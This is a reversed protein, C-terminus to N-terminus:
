LPLHFKVRTYAIRFGRREANRQSTSGPAACMMALDCGREIAFALRAELLARQAGQNRAEPITSAGALVAVGDHMVLAGTAIPRGNLEAVFPHSAESAGTVRALDRVLPAFEEFESWGQAATDAWMDLEDDSVIRTTLNTEPHSATSLPQYLVSTFEIPQYGRAVLAPITEPAGVPSVEHFVGAGRERFFTEIADLDVETPAGDIGLGFTQTLPSAVGDYMAFAGDRQIWTAGSEPRLRARAEVFAINAHAECHELRQALSRDAFPYGPDHM